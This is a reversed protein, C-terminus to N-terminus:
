FRLKETMIGFRIIDLQHNFYINYYDLGHYIQAFLGIDELFKPHYYFTLSLNLRNLSLDDWNNLEGFMWIAQGKLSISANKKKGPNGVQPLRFISFLNNWRYLSYIGDMEEMTSSQPHIEISTRFFQAANFRTNYNTKILGLEYYNTSFNGSKLNIEGNQLYFDGNQGNSHHAFKGFISLSNVETLSSLSYYVTLQPIYSPTKVPYSEEQYMRIIIQPTIIGMLRSDKSQRIYFNPILNGEFWLPEINGIDTPFTIYSNGQNVQAITTLEISPNTNINEQGM